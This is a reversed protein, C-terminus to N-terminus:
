HRFFIVGSGDESISSLYYAGLGTLPAGEGDASILVTENEQRDRLYMITGDDEGENVLTSFAVYRGDASVSPFLSPVSFEQGEPDLSIREIQKNINDYLFIDSVGNEDGEVLNSANSTFVIYRGDPSIDNSGGFFRSDNNGEVGGNSVSIRTFDIASAVNFVFVFGSLLLIPFMLYNLKRM